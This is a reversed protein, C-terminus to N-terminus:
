LLTNNLLLHFGQPRPFKVLFEELSISYTGMFIWIYLGRHIGKEGFYCLIFGFFYSLLMYLKNRNQTIPAKMTAKSKSQQKTLGQKQSRAPVMFTFLLLMWTPSRIMTSFTPTNIMKTQLPKLDQSKYCRIFARAARGRKSIQLKVSFGFM